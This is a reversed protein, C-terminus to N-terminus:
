KIRGFEYSRHIARPFLCALSICAGFRLVRHINRTRLAHSRLLAICICHKESDPSLAICIIARSVFMTLFHMGWLAFCSSYEENEFRSFPTASIRGFEYSGHIM